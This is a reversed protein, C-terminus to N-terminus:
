RNRPDAIPMALAFRSFRQSKPASLGQMVGELFGASAHQTCGICSVSSFNQLWFCGFPDAWKNRRVAVQTKKAFRLHDSSDAPHRSNTKKIQKQIGWHTMGLICLAQSVSISDRCCQSRSTRLPFGWDMVCMNGEWSERTPCAFPFVRAM